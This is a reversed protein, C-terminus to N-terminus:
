LQSVIRPKLDNRMMTSIARLRRSLMVIEHKQVEYYLTSGISEPYVSITEFFEKTFSQLLMNYQEVDAKSVYTKAAKRM